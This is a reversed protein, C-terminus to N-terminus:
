QEAGEHMFDFLSNQQEKTPEGIASQNIKLSHKIEKLASKSDTEITCNERIEHKIFTIKNKM